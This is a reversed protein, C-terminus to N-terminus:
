ECGREDSQRIVEDIFAKIKEVDEGSLTNSFYGKDQVCGADTVTDTVVTIITTM